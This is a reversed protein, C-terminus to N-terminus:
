LPHTKYTKRGVHTPAEWVKDLRILFTRPRDDTEAIVFYELNIQFVFSIAVM